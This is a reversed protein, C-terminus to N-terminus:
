LSNKGLNEGQNNALQPTLYGTVKTQTLLCKDSAAGSGSTHCPLRRHASNKVLHNVTRISQRGAGHPVPLRPPCTTPVSCSMIESCLIAVAGKRIGKLPSTGAEFDQDQNQMSSPTHSTGSSVARIDEWLIKGAKMQLGSQPMYLNSSQYLM